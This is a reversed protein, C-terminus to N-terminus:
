HALLSPLWLALRPQAILLALHLLDMGLFPVIGRFITSLPIDRALNHIVYVNMGMPPHVFGIEMSRVLFIGFWIPSLGLRLAVPLFVPTALLMLALGDLFSGLVLLVAAMAIVAALPGANMSGVSSAVRAPVGSLSLFASFIQAAIIVAYIMGTTRLTERLAQALSKWTLCRRAACMVLAGFTGVSAAETPTFWGFVLGSLVLGVLLSVDALGSLARVREQWPARVSRPALKPRLTVLVLVALVYSLAQTLAPVLAAIFLQGISQEAIIGFVILAASPPVLAGLTGGAALAGSALAPSYGHKRMEPLAVLGVTAATALSSGSVAGFAACGGVSALALGGPWHGVLKAAAAFFRQTAGAAFCLHAMLVFLPLVGLEYKSVTEFGVVAAKVLAAEPSLMIALGGIGVVGLASAIPVGASLLLLLGCLGSVGIATSTMRVEFTARIGGVRVLV